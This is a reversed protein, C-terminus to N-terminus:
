CVDWMHLANLNQIVPSGLNACVLGTADSVPEEQRGWEDVGQRWQQQQMLSGRRAGAGPLLSLHRQLTAAEEDAAAPQVHTHM